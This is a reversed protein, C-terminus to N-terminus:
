LHYFVKLNLQFIDFGGSTSIISIGINQGAGVVSPTYTIEMFASEGHAIPSSPTITVAYPPVAGTVGLISLPADGVNEVTFTHAVPTAIVVQGYDTDNAVNPIDNSLINIDNGTINILAGSALTGEAQINFTFSSM